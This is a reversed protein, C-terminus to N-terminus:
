RTGPSGHRLPAVQDKVHTRGIWPAPASRSLARGSRWPEVRVLWDRPLHEEAEIVTLLHTYFGDGALRGVPAHDEGLGDLVYLAHAHELACAEVEAEPRSLLPSAELLWDDAM